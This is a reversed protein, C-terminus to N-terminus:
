SPAPPAPEDGLGVRVVKWVEDVKALEIDAHKVAEGFRLTYDFRVREDRTTRPGREVAVEIQAESPTHGEKRLQQVEAIEQDLMRSAGFATFQKAGEQDARRFYADVFADAVKEPSGDAPRNCGVVGGALLAILLSAGLAVSRLASFPYGPRRGHGAAGSFNGAGM